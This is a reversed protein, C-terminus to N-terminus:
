NSYKKELYKQKKEAYILFSNIKRTNIENDILYPNIFEKLEIYWDTAPIDGKIEVYKNTTDILSSYFEFLITTIGYNIITQKIIPDSENQFESEINNIKDKSIKIGYKITQDIELKYQNKLQAPVPKYEALAPLLINFIICVLVLTRKFM